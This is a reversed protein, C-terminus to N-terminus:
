SQREPPYPNENHIPCEMSVGRVGDGDPAQCDCGTQAPMLWLRPGGKPPQYGVAGATCIRSFCESGVYVHQGDRTDVLTPNKGLRKDCAFCKGSM